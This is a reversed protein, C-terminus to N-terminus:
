KAVKFLLGGMYFAYDSDKGLSEPTQTADDFHLAKESITFNDAASALDYIYIIEVLPHEKIFEMLSAVTIIVEGDRMTIYDELNVRVFVEDTDEATKKFADFGKYSIPELKAENVAGEWGAFNGKTSFYYDGELNEGTFICRNSKDYAHVSKNNNM